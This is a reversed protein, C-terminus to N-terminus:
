RKGRMRKPLQQDITIMMVEATVKLAQRFRANLATPVDSDDSDSM